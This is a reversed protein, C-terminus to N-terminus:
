KRIYSYKDVFDLKFPLILTMWSNDFLAEPTLFTLCETGYPLSLDMYQLNYQTYHLDAVAFDAYGGVQM